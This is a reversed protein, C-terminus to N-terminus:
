TKEIDLATSICIWIINGSILAKLIVFFPNDIFAINM